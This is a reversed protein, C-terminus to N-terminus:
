DLLEDVIFPLDNLHDRILEVAEDVSLQDKRIRRLVNVKLDWIVYAMDNAFIAKKHDKSEELDSLNFTIKAKM